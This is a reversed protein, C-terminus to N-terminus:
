VLTIAQEMPLSEEHLKSPKADKAPHGLVMLGEVTLGELQPFLERLAKEDYLGVFTTGLGLDAAQLMMHDAAIMIDQEGCNKGDTVRVSARAADYALIIIVPAGFHCQTCARIQAVAEESVAVIIRQSQYNKATPALMVAQLVKELLKPAVPTSDFKRVSYRKKALEYFNEMM